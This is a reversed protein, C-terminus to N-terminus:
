KKSWHILKKTFSTVRLYESPDTPKAFYNLEFNMRVLSLLEEGEPNLGTETSKLHVSSILDGLFRDRTFLNEIRASIDDLLWTLEPSDGIVVEITLEARKRTEQTSQSAIESEEKQISYLLFPLETEQFPTGRSDYVSLEGGFESLFSTYLYKKIEKRRNM